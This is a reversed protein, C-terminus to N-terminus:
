KVGGVMTNALCRVYGSIIIRTYQKAHLITCIVFTNWLPHYGNRVVKKHAYTKAFIGILLFRINMGQRVKYTHGNTCTNESM